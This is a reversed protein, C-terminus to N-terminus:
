AALRRARRANLAVALWFLLGLLMAAAAIALALVRGDHTSTSAVSVTRMAGPRVVVATRAGDPLAIAVTLDFAGGLQSQLAHDLAGVDVGAGRLRAALQADGSIGDSLNRLDAVLSVADRDRVLSRSRVVRADRLAGHRGDLEALVSALGATGSFGKTLSIAAGGNATARWSSVSWGHARLDALPVDPMVSTSASGAVATRASRDLTVAVNVTGTGDARVRIAVTASAHCASLALV